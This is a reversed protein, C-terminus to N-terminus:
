EKVEKESVWCRYESESAAKEAAEKTSYIGDMVTHTDYLGHGIYAGDEDHLVVYVKM